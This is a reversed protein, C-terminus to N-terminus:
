KTLLKNLLEDLSCTALGIVKDASGYYVFLKGNIVINGEPFVVNNVDGIKEYEQESELIPEKTRAIVKSPDKLGLLAAGARYYPGPMVGHYIMLWGAKTKIPPPGAGIKREEWWEQSEMVLKHGFWHKLNYSYALWIGPKQPLNQYSCPIKVKSKDSENKDMWEKAWRAPRHLIAYKGNIKEPFLVVDKNNSFRPTILGHRKFKKFDKTSFLATAPPGGGQRVPKSLAVYTFYFTGQIETVRPDEFAWRDYQKKPGFIPESLVPEFRVGDDSIYHGIRSIYDKYEGIIRPFLHIKGDKYCVAPNFIAISEWWNKPNPKLIPNKKYRQLM